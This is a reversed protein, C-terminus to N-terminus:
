DLVIWKSSQKMRVGLKFSREHHESAGGRAAMIAVALVRSVACEASRALSLVDISFFIVNAAATVISAVAEANACLADLGAPVPGSAGFGAAAAGTCAAGVLGAATADV